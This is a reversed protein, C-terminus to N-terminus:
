NAMVTIEKSSFVVTGSLSIIAVPLPNLTLFFENEEEDDEDDTLVELRVVYEKSPMPRKSPLSVMEIFKLRTSRNLNDLLIFVHGQSDVESLCQFKFEEGTLKVVGFDKTIYVRSGDKFKAVSKQKFSCISIFILTLLLMRILYQYM